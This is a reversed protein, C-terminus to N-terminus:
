VHARGIEITVHDGDRNLPVNLDARVLVRKGKVGADLLDALNNM